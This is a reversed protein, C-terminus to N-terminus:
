SSCAQKDLHYRGLMAHRLASGFFVALAADVHVAM